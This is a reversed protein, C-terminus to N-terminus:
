VCVLVLDRVSICSRLATFKARRNLLADLLVTLCRQQRVLGGDDKPNQVDRIRLVHSLAALFIIFLYIFLKEQPTVIVVLMNKYLM